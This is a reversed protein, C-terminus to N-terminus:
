TKLVLTVSMGPLGIYVGFYIKTANQVEHMIPMIKRVFGRFNIKDVAKSSKLFFKSCRPKVSQREFMKNESIHFINLTNHQRLLPKMMKMIQVFQFFM